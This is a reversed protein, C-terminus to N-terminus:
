YGCDLQLTIRTPVIKLNWISQSMSLPILNISAGLDILAKGVSVTGISCPITVSRADKFKQPLIGQIIASCNGEVV